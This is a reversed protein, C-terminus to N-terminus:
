TFCEIFILPPYDLLDSWYDRGYAMGGEPSLLPRHWRVERFGAARLAEEYAETDLFYNEIDFPGDELHFTWTIPAGERFSGVVRTDFGYPRYSPASPFDCAPNGNVTVFRGGPKLCRAVGGCMANLEARDHAYNLFYAAVALDYDAALGLNRGDGVIYDIGLRQEAESARALEIMKESL